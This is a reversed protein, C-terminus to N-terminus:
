YQRSAQIATLSAGYAGTDNWAVPSGNEHEWPTTFVRRRVVDKVFGANSGKLLNVARTRQRYRGYPYNAHDPLLSYEWRGASGEPVVSSAGALYAERILGNVFDASYIAYATSDVVDDAYAEAAPQRYDALDIQERKGM